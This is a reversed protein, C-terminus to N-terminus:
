RKLGPLNVLSSLSVFEFWGRGLRIKLFAVVLKILVILISNIVSADDIISFQVDVRLIRQM